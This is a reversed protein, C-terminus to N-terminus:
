YVISRALPEFTSSVPPLTLSFPGVEDIVKALKRDARSLVRTAEDVDFPFARGSAALKFGETALLKAKTGEGGFASFGGPKKGAALVRHCAVVVPWPNKAMAQGVARMANPSGALKALQGYSVTEGSPVLRLAAYVKRHFPPLGSDDLKMGAFKQIDGKVHAAIAKAAKAIAPPPAAPKALPAKARLKAETKKPTEEPLQISSIGADTWALGMTGIATQFLTYNVNM